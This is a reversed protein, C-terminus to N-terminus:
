LYEYEQCRVTETSFSGNFLLLFIFIFQSLLVRQVIDIQKSVSHVITQCV